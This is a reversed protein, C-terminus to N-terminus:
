AHRDKAARSGFVPSLGPVPDLIYRLLVELKLVVAEVYQWAHFRCRVTTRSAGCSRWVIDNTQSEQPAQYLPEGVRADPRRRNTIEALQLADELFGGSQRVDVGSRPSLQQRISRCPVEFCLTRAGLLRVECRLGNRGMTLAGVSTPRATM